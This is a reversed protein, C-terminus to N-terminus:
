FINLKQNVLHHLLFFQNLILNTLFSKSHLLWMSSNFWRQTVRKISNTFIIYNLVFFWQWINANLNLKAVRNNWEKKGAPCWVILFEYLILLLPCSFLVMYFFGCFWLINMAKTLLLFMSLSLHKM